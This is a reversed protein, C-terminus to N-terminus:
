CSEVSYRHVVPNALLKVAVREAQAPYLRGWFKYVVGTRASEPAPLGLDEVAKRLSSEVPDTVSNKLRVEIRWHPSWIAGVPRQGNLVFDQTIPDTLLEKAVTMMQGLTFRGRFDYLAGVKIETVSQIGIMPLQALLAAGAPDSFGPRCFVEVRYIMEPLTKTMGNPTATLLTPMDDINNHRM